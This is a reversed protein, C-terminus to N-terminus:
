SNKLVTKLKLNEASQIYKIQRGTIPKSFPFVEERYESECLGISESLAIARSIGWAVAEGHSITGLGLVTELAHAFTHGLNLWMRINKETLDKEVVQAKAQACRKIINMLLRQERNLLADKEDKMVLVLKESFLLGTKLAEALGSRFENESQSQIFEPSIYLKSAPYLDWVIKIAKFDCGTKGLQLM